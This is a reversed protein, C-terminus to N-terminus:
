IHYIGYEYPHRLLTIAFSWKYPTCWGMRASKLHVNPMGRSRFLRPLQRRREWNDGFGYRQEPAFYADPEEIFPNYGNCYFLKQSYYGNTRERFVPPETACLTIKYYETGRARPSIETLRVSSCFNRIAEEYTITENDLNHAPMYEKGQGHEDPNFLAAVPDPRTSLRSKDYFHARTRESLDTKSKWRRHGRPLVPFPIGDPIKEERIEGTPTQTRTRIAGTTWWTTQDPHTRYSPSYRQGLLEGIIEVGERPASYEYICRRLEPPLDCLQFKTSENNNISM